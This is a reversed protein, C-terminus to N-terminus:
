PTGIRCRVPQGMRTAATVSDLRGAGSFSVFSGTTLFKRQLVGEIISPRVLVRTQGDSSRFSVDVLESLSGPRIDGSFVLRVAVLTDLTEVSVTGRDHDAYFTAINDSTDNLAPEPFGWDAKLVDFPLFETCPMPNKRQCNDSQRLYGAFKGLLCAFDEITLSVFDCNIDSTAVSGEYHNGFVTDGEVFWRAYMDIDNAADALGNLDLDGRVDIFGEPWFDMGGNCFLLSAVRPSDHNELFCESPLGGFGPFSDSPRVLDYSCDLVERAVFTTAGAADVLVNDNCDFWVFEVPFFNGRITRDNTILFKMTFATDLFHEAPFCGANRGLADADIRAEIRLVARHPDPDFTEIRYSFASWACNPQGNRLGPVVKVHRMVSTDVVMALRIESLPTHIRYLVVQLDAFTGGYANANGTIRVTTLETIDAPAGAEVFSATACVLVAMFAATIRYRLFSM